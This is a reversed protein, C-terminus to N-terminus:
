FILKKILILCKLKQQKVNDMYIKYYSGYFQTMLIILYMVM